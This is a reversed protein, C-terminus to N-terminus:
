RLSALPVDVSHDDVGMLMYPDEGIGQREIAL